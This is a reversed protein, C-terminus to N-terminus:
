PLCRNGLGGLHMAVYAHYPPTHLLVERSQERSPMFQSTKEHFCGLSALLQFILVKGTLDKLFWAIFLAIM